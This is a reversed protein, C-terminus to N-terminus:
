TKSEATLFYNVGVDDNSLTFEAKFPQFVLGHLDTVEGGSNRVMRSLESPKVFKHWDHTGAPVWGLIYEAAIKGLAYSKATRNLTSFIVLGGPKVLDFCDQVFKEPNTVHEIIELALVIDFTKGQGIFDETAANAYQVKLGSLEAHQRAAEIANVDADIGTVTAGLRAMPECVLGGGCGIDLVSLDKLAKLDNMQRDFRECIRSKIYFLRVPNIRHLPRFPGDADWWHSSDKAFHEIERADVTRM